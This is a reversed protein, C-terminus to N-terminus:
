LYGKFKGVHQYEDKTLYRDTSICVIGDARTETMLVLNLEEDYECWTGHNEYVTIVERLQYPTLQPYRQTMVKNWNM